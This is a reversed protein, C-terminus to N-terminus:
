GTRRKRHDRELNKRFQVWSDDMMQQFGAATPNPGGIGTPTRRARIDLETRGGPRERLRYDLDFIRYNGISRCTWRDPPRLDVLQRKWYWGGEKMESLDEYVVKRGNRVLIKREYEEGELRADGPDFDTCWRYVFPLPADFTIRYRYSKSRAAM